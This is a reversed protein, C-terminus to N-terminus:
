RRVAVVAPPRRAPMVVECMGDEAIAAHYGEHVGASYGRAYAEAALAHQAARQPSYILGVFWGVFGGALGGLGIGVFLAQLDSSSRTLFQWAFVACAVGLVTLVVTKWTNVTQM